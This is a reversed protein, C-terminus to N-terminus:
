KGEQGRLKEVIQRRLPDSGTALRPGDESGILRTYFDALQEPTLLKLSAYCRLEALAPLPNSTEHAIAEARQQVEEATLKPMDGLLVEKDLYALADSLLEDADGKSGKDDASGNGTIASNVPKSKWLSDDRAVDLVRLTLNSQGHIQGGIKVPKSVIVAMILVDIGDKAAARRAQGAEMEGLNLIGGEDTIQGRPHSQNDPNANAPPQSAIAEHAAQLWRGFRGEGIRAQLKELLPKGLAPGWYTVSESVGQPSPPPASKRRSSRSPAAERVGTLEPAQVALGCRLLFFPKKLAKSWRLSDIADKNGQAADAQLLSIAQKQRGKVLAAIADTQYKSLTVAPKAAAAPTGATAPEANVIPMGATAPPAATAPSAATATPNADLAALNVTDLANASFMAQVIAPDLSAWLRRVAGDAFAALFMGRRLKGLGALPQAPFYHLDEPQTWGVAADAEVLLLTNEKGDGILTEAMGDRGGFITGLGAPVVYCTKGAATVGPTQYASPVKAALAKNRPSDWPEQLQFQKFLEEQGLYPLLAVRWSLLPKDGDYNAAAPFHGEHQHYAAMAQAITKLNALSRAEPSDSRIGQPLNEVPIPAVPIDVPPVVPLPAAAENAAPQQPQGPQQQAPPQQVAAALSTPRPAVAPPPLDDGGCGSLIGLLVGVSLGLLLSRM